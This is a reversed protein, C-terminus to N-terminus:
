RARLWALIRAKAEATTELTQVREQLVNKNVIELELMRAVFPWDKERGAALKSAALDYPALCYGIKGDTNKNQVRVM